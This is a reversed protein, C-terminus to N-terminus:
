LGSLVMFKLDSILLLVFSMYSFVVFEIVSFNGFRSLRIVM